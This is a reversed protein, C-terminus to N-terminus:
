IRCPMVLAYFAGSKFELANDKKAKVQWNEGILDKLLEYNICNEFKKYIGILARSLEIGSENDKCDLPMYLAEIADYNPIVQQCNPFDMDDIPVFTINNTSVIVNYLGNELKPLLEKNTFRHLRKGDTCTIGNEDVLMYNLVLRTKDKSRAKLVWLIQPMFRKVNINMSVTEITKPKEITNQM